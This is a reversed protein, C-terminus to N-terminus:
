RMNRWPDADSPKDPLRDIAAKYAKEAAADKKKKEQASHQDSAPRKGGGRGNMQSYAPSAVLAITALALLLKRALKAM